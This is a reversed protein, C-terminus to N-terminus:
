FILQVNFWIWSCCSCAGRREGPVLRTLPPGFDRPLARFRPGQSKLTGVLAPPLQWSEEDFHSWASTTKIGLANTLCRHARSGTRLGQPRPAPPPPGAPQSSRSRVRAVPPILHTGACDRTHGPGPIQTCLAGRPGPTMLGHSM